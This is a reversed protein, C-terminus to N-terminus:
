GKKKRRVMIGDPLFLLVAREAGDYGGLATYETEGAGAVARKIVSGM